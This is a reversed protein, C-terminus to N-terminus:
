KHSPWVYSAMFDERRGGGMKKSHPQDTVNWDWVSRERYM